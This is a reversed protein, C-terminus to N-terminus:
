TGTFLEQEFSFLSVERELSHMARREYDALGLKNTRKCHSGPGLSKFKQDGCLRRPPRSLLENLDGREVVTENSNKVTTWSLRLPKCAFGTEALDLERWIIEQALKFTEQLQNFIILNIPPASPSRVGPRRM